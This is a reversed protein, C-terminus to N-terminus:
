LLDRYGRAILLEQLKKIDQAKDKRCVLLADPTDVIILDDVGMLVTLKHPSSVVCKLSEVCLASGSVANGCDDDSWVGHLSSWCGVDNWHVDLPVTLVKQAKEMIGYDISVNQLDAYVNRLAEAEAPTNLAPFISEMAQTIGPLHNRFADIITSVKWIFMGSNWLFRGDNFYQEATDLDPKEVFCEVQFVKSGTSNLVPHGLKLYGYGTEPRNPIVGLTILYDDGLAMDYATRIASRFNEDDGILHDAPLVAMVAEPDQKLVKYAALAICPATNRSFPEEVVREQTLEPIESRIQAACVQSTIIMINLPSVLPVIRDVTTRIMSKEGCISLLQKPRTKRSEPWFRTGSGGAM